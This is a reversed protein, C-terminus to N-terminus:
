KAGPRSQCTADQLAEQIAGLLDDFLSYKCVYGSAGAEIMDASYEPEKHASLAVIKIDPNQARIKRTAEVGGMKPMSVDMIIVDPRLRAALAVAIEGNEAQGVVEMETLNVILSEIGSRVVAHDDVLMIRPTM